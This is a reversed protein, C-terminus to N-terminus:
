AARHRIPIVSAGGTRQADLFDAWAQLLVRREPLHQAHNYAAATKNNQVHALAAEVVHPPYGSEHAWTSFLGRWGHGTMRGKFGMRGLAMLLTNNSMPKAHEREGPFLLVDPGERRRLAHLLELVELAQRSLPVVHRRRKKTREAPIRWEAAEFDFEGWAAGILEGTRAATLALLKMALRTRPAGAYVAAARLLAPLEALEVRAFNEATHGKLVDSPKVDAVPNREALGHAVAYRMVQACSELVRRPLDRVGRAEIRKAMHVFDPATLEGVPKHGLAPFADSELRRRVYGVHRPSKDHGWDALWRGAVAEFSRESAALAARKADRRAEGPDTGTELLKRAEDRKRRAEALGVAPYAGLALRKEHGRFRYKWRWLRGGTATAELYLGGADAHRKYPRGESTAVRCAADTLAVEQGKPPGQIGWAGLSIGGHGWIHGRTGGATLPCGQVAPFM